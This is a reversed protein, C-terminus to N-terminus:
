SAPLSYCNRWLALYDREEQAWRADDWALRAQCLARIRPLHAVAGGALLLGLRTRRLLLDDLHLVLESQAAWALEAWLTDSGAVRESGVEAMVALLGPLQRGYRGALRKQQAPSLQPMAPAACARFVATGQDTVAQGVFGACAQLVELALLRFTTLKGGALTVCGPEVWLAHERKEQSPRKSSDADSVVPRVGAWTSCLDSARIAAGPFQQACAALLYDLEEVSIRADQDLSERHDLDTTGVVTAGEWPFVFVPRGDQAHMFSLAQAVPLRWAPLVLHSGRLPRIHELGNGPRLRDAWVGTAQAVARSRFSFRQGSERDEGLLGVVRGGERRLEIVRVGNLAEGGEGRAEGLVRLVLRADDTVADFFQTGGLLGHEQLGPARYRLQQLPHYLHNRKGALADYLALLGGFVRPGPFSGRYHPLLFGLADVLGPAEQLLRQRERVSDRTLKLQGQAIYRLGGHVMKSSRSSTGWAFDRQELLLCKWGRRAAERLIGAGSIGGGVVILDWERAALEALSRERWAANWATM